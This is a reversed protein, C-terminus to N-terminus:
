HARGDREGGTIWRLVTSAPPKPLRMLRRALLGLALALLLMTASVVAAALGLSGFVPALALASALALMVVLATILLSVTWLLAAAGAWRGAYGGAEARALRLEVRALAQAEDSLRQVLDALSREPRSRSLTDFDDAPM